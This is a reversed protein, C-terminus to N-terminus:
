FIIVFTSPNHVIHGTWRRGVQATFPCPEMCETCSELGPTPEDSDLFLLLEPESALEVGITLWKRAEIGLTCVM